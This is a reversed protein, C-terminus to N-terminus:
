LPRPANAEPGGNACDPLEAYAARRGSRSIWVRLSAQEPCPKFRWRFEWGDAWQRTERRDFEAAPHGTRQRFEAAMRDAITQAGAADIVPDRLALVAIGGAVFATIFLLTRRRTM